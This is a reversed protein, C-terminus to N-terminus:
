SPADLYHDDYSKLYWFTFMIHNRVEHSFEEEADSGSNMVKVEVRLPKWCIVRKGDSEFRVSDFQGGLWDARYVTFLEGKTIEVLNQLRDWPIWRLYYEGYDRGYQKRKLIKDYEANGTTWGEVFQKYDCDATCWITERYLTEGCVYCNFPVNSM